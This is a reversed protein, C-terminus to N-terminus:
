TVGRLEEALGSTRKIKRKVAAAFIEKKGWIEVKARARTIATYLLERTLVPSDQDPLILVLRNFESGQSKHVTMAFVTEHGPLLPPAITRVMGPQDRFFAQVSNKNEPDPMIIGVDGNFLRLNYDNKVVLIPRVTLFPKGYTHMNSFQQASHTKDQRAFLKELIQNVREVGFPGQRLGCLLRFDDLMSFCSDPDAAQQMAKFNRVLQSDQLTKELEAPAPIELWSTSEDGPTLLIDLAEESDGDKVARSLRAISSEPEFRYSHVLEVFSDQLPSSTKGIANSPSLMIASGTLDEITQLFDDSFGTMMETGCIDSLVSGPQVSSLQYRDGLLILMASAPVAQMLKAMLPLDVMSAEDIVVIDAALPNEANHRFYPSNPVHGLLRHLTTAQLPETGNQVLGTEIIAQQLRSAAKGTPASLFIRLPKRDKNQSILLALIRAVTFTKGTGPGGTIVCFSRNAAVIAAIKQWDTEKAHLPKFLKNLDRGLSTYDLERHVSAARQKIFGAISIEYERYRSLYLRSGALVLPTGAKNEAAVGSELLQKIWDSLPPCVFTGMGDQQSDPHIHKGAYEALDLCINGAGTSRSVLAGALAAALNNKEALRALFLGFHRDLSSFLEPECLLERIEQSTSSNDALSM